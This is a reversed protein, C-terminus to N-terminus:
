KLHLLSLSLETVQSVVCSILSPRDLGQQAHSVGGWGGGGGGSWTQEFCATVWLDPNSGLAARMSPSHEVM